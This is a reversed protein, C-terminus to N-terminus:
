KILFTMKLFAATKKALQKQIAATIPGVLNDNEYDDDVAADTDQYDFRHLDNEHFMNFNAEYYLLLKAFLVCWNLHM